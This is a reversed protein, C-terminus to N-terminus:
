SLSPALAPPAVAEAEGKKPEEFPARDDVKSSAITPVADPEASELKAFKVRSRDIDARCYPCKSRGRSRDDDFKIMHDYCDKHLFHKRHCPLSAIETPVEYDLTCIPCMGRM